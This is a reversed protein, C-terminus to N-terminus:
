GAQEVHRCIAHFRRGSLEGHEWLACAVATIRAWVLPTEILDLARLKMLERYALATRDSSMLGRSADIIFRLDVDGNRVPRDGFHGTWLEVAKIEALPGAWSVLIHGAIRDQDHPSGWYNLREL